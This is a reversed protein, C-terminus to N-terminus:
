LLLKLADNLGECKYRDFLYEDRDKRGNSKIWRALNLDRRHEHYKIKKELELKISDKYISVKTKKM